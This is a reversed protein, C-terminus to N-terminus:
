ANTGSFIGVLIWAGAVGGITEIETIMGIPVDNSAAAADTVTQDDSIVADKGEQGAALGTHAFWEEHGWEFRIKTTNSTGTTVREICVGVGRESATDSSPIVTSAAASLSLMGGTYFEDSDVGTIAGDKVGDINRVHRMRNAALATV